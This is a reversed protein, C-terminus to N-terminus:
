LGETEQQWLRERQETQALTDIFALEITDLSMRKLIAHKDSVKHIVHRDTSKMPTGYKARLADKVRNFELDRFTGRIVIPHKDPSIVLQIDGAAFDEPLNPLVAYFPVDIPFKQTSRRAFPQRFSIGFAGELKYQDGMTFQDAFEASRRRHLVLQRKGQNAQERLHMDYVKHQQVAWQRVGAFDMYQIITSPGCMVDIQKDVFVIRIAQEFGDEPAVAMEGIVKYKRNLMDTMWEFEEGCGQLDIRVTVRVPNNQQNVMVHGVHEYRRLPKPVLVGPFMHWPYKGGPEIEPIVMKRNGPLALRRISSTDQLEAGLQEQVLSQDFRIGLGGTIPSEAVGAHGPRPLTVLWWWLGFVILRSM